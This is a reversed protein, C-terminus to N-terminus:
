WYVAIFIGAFIALSLNKLGQKLRAVRMENAKRKEEEKHEEQDRIGFYKDYLDVVNDEALELRGRMAELDELVVTLKDYRRSSESPYNFGGFGGSERERSTKHWNDNADNKWGGWEHESKDGWGM